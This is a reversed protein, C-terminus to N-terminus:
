GSATEEFRYNRSDCVPDYGIDEYIHNSTPNSLDTYLFCFARGRDLHHQSLAAVLASAYGRRRNAPPTYVPGIRIGNPTPGGSGALSVPEGDEWLVLSGAPGRLRLDVVREPDVPDEEPLSEAAFARLWEVLLARDTSTAERMRGPAGKVPKVSTLRFIRSDMSVRAGSGTLDTWARAFDDAEPVAGTVGPLDVRDAHLQAALTPVAGDAESRSVALNFPPTRVAVAAVRGGGEVVWLHFEPYVEPREVLNTGIGLILNHRAEDTLLFPRTREVFERPDELRAVEM